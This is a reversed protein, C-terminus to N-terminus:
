SHLNDSLLFFRSLHDRLLLITVHLLSSKGKDDFIKASLLLTGKLRCGNMM